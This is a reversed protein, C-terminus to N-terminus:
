GGGSLHDILAVVQIATFKATYVVIYACIFGYAIRQVLLLMPETRQPNLFARHITPGVIGFCEFIMLLVAIAVRGVYIIM